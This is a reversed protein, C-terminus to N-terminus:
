KIGPLLVVGGGIAKVGVAFGGIAIYGIACGGIAVGGVACGGTAFILGLALGGFGLLGVAVGGFAFVGFAVGGFALFGSAIDGFAIIGKAHGRLENKAPDPGYAVAVLPIGFIEAKSRRRIGNLRGAKARPRQTDERLTKIESILEDRSMLDFENDPNRSDFFDNM